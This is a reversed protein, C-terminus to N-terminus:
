VRTSREVVVRACWGLAFGFILVVWLAVFWFAFSV